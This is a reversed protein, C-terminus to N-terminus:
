NKDFRIRAVRTSPEALGTVVKPKRWWVPRVPTMAHVRKQATLMYCAALEPWLAQGRLEWKQSTKVRRRPLPWRFFYRQNGQIRMDLLKLWDRLRRESILHDAGPPMGAGPVLRRLGWLGAPKFGLVVLHGNARLVRDVERLIEHPRDSYDLTHPLLAADISDSAVPLKHFEGVACPTGLTTDGILSCRQTRTFRMFTRNEGWLGLQLCEEGFIGDLAEEVVRAEQQLLAAGLPTKLWDHALQSRDVQM